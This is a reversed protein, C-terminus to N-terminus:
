KQELQIDIDCVSARADGWRDEMCFTDPSLPCSSLTFERKTTSIIVSYLKKVCVFLWDGLDVCVIMLDNRGERERERETERERCCCDRM